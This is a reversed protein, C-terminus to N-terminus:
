ESWDGRRGQLGAVLFAIGTAASVLALGETLANEWPFDGFWIWAALVVLMAGIVLAARRAYVTRLLVGRLRKM